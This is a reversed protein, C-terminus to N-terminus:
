RCDGVSQPWADRAKMLAKEEVLLDDRAAQWEDRSVIEPLAISEQQMSPSPIAPGEQKAM